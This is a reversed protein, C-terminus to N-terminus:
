RRPIDQGRASWQHRRPWIGRDGRLRQRWGALIQEVDGACLATREHCLDSGRCQRPTDEAKPSVAVVPVVVDVLPDSDVLDWSCRVLEREIREVVGSPARHWAVVPVPVDIVRWGFGRLIQPRFVFREEVSRLTADDRDLLIGLAYSAGDPAIIALDCRFSAGGVHTHVQHGRSRLADAIADRVADEPPAVGFTRAADYARLARCRNVSITM